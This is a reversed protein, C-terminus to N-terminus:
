KNGSGDVGMPQYIFTQGDATQLLQTGQLFYYHYGLKLWRSVDNCKYNYIGSVQLNGFNGIPLVQIAQQMNPQGLTQVVIPQGQAGGGV